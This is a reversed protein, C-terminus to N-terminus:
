AVHGNMHQVAGSPPASATSASGSGARQMAKTTPPVGDLASPARPVSSGDRVNILDQGQQHRCAKPSDHRPQQHLLQQLCRAWRGHHTQHADPRLRDGHTKLLPPNGFWCALLPLGRTVMEPAHRGAAGVRQDLREAHGPDALALDRAQAGLDVMTDRREWFSLGRTL